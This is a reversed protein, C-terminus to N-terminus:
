PKVTTQISGRGDKHVFAVMQANIRTSQRVAFFVVARSIFRRGLAPLEGDASAQAVSPQKISGICAGFDFVAFALLQMRRIGNMQEFEERRVVYGVTQVQTCIDVPLAAAM